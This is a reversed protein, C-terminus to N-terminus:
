GRLHESDLGPRILSALVIEWVTALSIGLEATAIQCPNHCGILQTIPAPYHLQPKVKMSRIRM